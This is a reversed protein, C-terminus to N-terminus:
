QTHKPYGYCNLPGLPIQGTRKLTRYDYLVKGIILLIIVILSANVIDLPNITGHSACLDHKSLKHIRENPHPGDSSCLVQDIDRIRKYHKLLLDHFPAVVKCECNWPNNGLQVDDLSEMMRREIM